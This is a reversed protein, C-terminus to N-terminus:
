ASSYLDGPNIQSATRRCRTAPAPLVIISAPTRADAEARINRYRQSLTALAPATEALGKVV